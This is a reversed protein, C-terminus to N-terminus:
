YPFNFKQLIEWNRGNHKFLVFGEANFTDQFNRKEFQPWAKQFNLRNLDRTAITIHPHINRIKEREGLGFSEELVEQIKEHLLAVPEPNTVNIFITRTSFRGFGSLQVKFAKKNDTIKQLAELLSAEDEEKIKFPIQLTVHAPLKLAKASNYKEKIELKLNRIKEELQADPVIAVFYLHSKKM